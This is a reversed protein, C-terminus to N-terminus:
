IWLHCFYKGFLKFGESYRKLWLKRQAETLDHPPAIVDNVKQQFSWIMKQLISKWEKSTLNGPHGCNIRKFEKLRPLVFKAITFDLDYLEEKDFEPETM